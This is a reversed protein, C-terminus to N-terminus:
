NFEKTQAECIALALADAADDSQPIKKLNLLIKIMKQIQKKDARGYGTIAMKVQLPTFVVIPTQSQIGTLIIVGKAQGVQLATKVNKCFFLEEIAIKHPKYKKIIKKLDRHIKALREAFELRQSTQIIGSDILKLQNKSAQILGYGTIALGPDLGLILKSNKIGSATKKARTM